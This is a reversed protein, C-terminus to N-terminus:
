WTANQNHVHSPERPLLQVTDDPLDAPTAATPPIQEVTEQQENRVFQQSSVTPNTFWKKLDRWEKVLAALAQYKWFWAQGAQSPEYAFPDYEGEGLESHDLSKPEPAFWRFLAALIFTIGLGVIPGWQGIAQLGESEPIQGLWVMELRITVSLLLIPVAVYGVICLIYWALAMNRAYTERSRTNVEELHSREYVWAQASCSLGIKQLGLQLNTKVWHIEPSLYTVGRWFLHICYMIHFTFTTSITGNPSSMVRKMRLRRFATNRTVRPPRYQNRQGLILLPYLAVIELIQLASYKIQYGDVRGGGVTSPPGVTSNQSASSNSPVTKWWSSLVVGTTGDFRGGRFLVQPNQGACPDPCDLDKPCALQLIHKATSTTFRNLGFDLFLILLFFAVIWWNYFSDFNRGIFRPSYMRAMVACFLSTVVIIYLAILDPDAGLSSQLSMPISQVAAALSYVFASGIAASSIWKQTRFVFAVAITVYFLIRQVRTYAGSIPYLCWVNQYFISTENAADQM